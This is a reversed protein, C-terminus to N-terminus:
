PLDACPVVHVVLDIGQRQASLALARGAPSVATMSPASGYRAVSERALMAILRLAIGSRRLYPVVWVGIICPGGNGLENTPALTAIGVPDGNEEESFAVACCEVPRWRDGELLMVWSLPAIQMAREKIYAVAKHARPMISVSIDSM